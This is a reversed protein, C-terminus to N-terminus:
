RCLQSLLETFHRFKEPASLSSNHWLVTMSGGYHCVTEHLQRTLAFADESLPPAAEILTGDMCLLPQEKLSLSRRQELDYVGFKRATGCRFGLAHSYALSSDCILGYKEWMRWTASGKFRLYHQRGECVPEPSWHRLCQLERFFIEENDSSHYSPHFGIQHGQQLLNDRLRQLPPSNLDYPTDYKLSSAGGMFYFNGKIGCEALTDCITAFSFYPDRAADLRSLLMRAAESINRRKLLAGAVVRVFRRPSLHHWHFPTDVDCSYVVAHSPNRIPITIGVSALRHVLEELLEDAVARFLLSNRYLWTQEPLLRDHEDRPLNCADEFATLLFFITGLLDPLANADEEAAQLTMLPHGRFNKAELTKGNPALRSLQFFTEPATEPFLCNGLRIKAAGQRLIWSSCDTGTHLEYPTDLFDGFVTACIYVYEPHFFHGPTFIQLM